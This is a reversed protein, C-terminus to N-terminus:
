KNLNGIQVRVIGNSYVKIFDKTLYLGNQNNGMTLTDTNISGGEILTVHRSNVDNIVDQSSGVFPPMDNIEEFYVGGKLRITNTLTDVKFPADVSSGNNNAIIFKDAFIKFQSTSGDSEAVFGSIAGNADVVLSSKARAEGNVDVTAEDLRKVSASIRKDDIAIWNSGNYRYMKNNDDSDLWIDGNGNEKDTPTIYSPPYTQYWTVIKSDATAQADISAQFATSALDDKFISWGFLDTEPDKVFRYTSLLRKDGASNLEYWVYTDGTHIAAEGNSLWTAYPEVGPLIEGYENVPKTLSFWTEVKGDVQKELIAIDAFAQRLQSQQSQMTATLTSASKAAAYAVNSVTSVQSNFWAAGGNTTWAGIVSESIARAEEATTKTVQLNQIGASNALTNAQLTEVNYTIASANQKIYGIEQTYGQEFLSFRNQLDNVDMQTPSGNIIGNIINDFWSPTEDTKNAIYIDDGMITYKKPHVVVQFNPEEVAINSGSTISIHEKDDIGITNVKVEIDM